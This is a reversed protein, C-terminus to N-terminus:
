SDGDSPTNTAPPVRRTVMPGENVTVGRPQRGKRANCSRCLVQVHALTTAPWQLHDATLDSTAGCHVCWPHVQRALRSLKRWANDYGRAAPSPKPAAPPQHRDCYRGMTPTGCTECPKPLSVM